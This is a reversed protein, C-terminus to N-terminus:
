EGVQWQWVIVKKVELVATGNKIYEKSLLLSFDIERRM